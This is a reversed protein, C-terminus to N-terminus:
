KQISYDVANKVCEVLKEYAEIFYYASIIVRISNDWANEFIYEKVKIPQMNIPPM